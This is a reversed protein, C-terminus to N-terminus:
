KELNDWDEKLMAYVLDDVWKGDILLSKRFHAEKRFGLREVLQISKTNEPDISTIIRHKNLKNFLYHITEKLAETAYGKGHENKNLTCGIETQMQDSDLFHIGLDGILKDKGKEIIAFQFWTEEVNITSSVKNAIFDHVEEFTKPIWGQFQNTISDSRYSFIDKADDLCVARLLLRETNIEPSTNM